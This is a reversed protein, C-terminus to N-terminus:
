TFNFHSINKRIATAVIRNIEAAATLNRSPPEIAFEIDAVKKGRAPKNKKREIKYIGMSLNELFRVLTAFVCDNISMITIVAATYKLPPTDLGREKRYTRATM